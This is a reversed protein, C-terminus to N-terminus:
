GTVDGSPSWRVWFDASTPSLPRIRVVPDSAYTTVAGELIGVHWADLFTYIEELRIIAEREGVELVSARGTSGSLGYAKTVLSLLMPIDSGVAGFVIKGLLSRRLTPYAIRGLRRLGERPPESPHLREACLALLEVLEEGPYDRFAVYRRGPIPRGRLACEDLLGQFQMGKVTAGPQVLALYADVDLAGTMTPEVFHTRDIAM